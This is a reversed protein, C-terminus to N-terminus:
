FSCAEKLVDKANEETPLVQIPNMDAFLFLSSSSFLLLYNSGREDGDRPSALLKLNITHADRVSSIPLTKTNLPFMFEFGFFPFSLRM